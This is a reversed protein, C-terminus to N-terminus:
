LNHATKLRHISDQLTKQIFSIAYISRETHSITMLTPPSKSVDALLLHAQELLHNYGRILDSELLKNYRRIKAASKQNRIKRIEEKSLHNLASKNADGTKINMGLFKPAELKIADVLDKGLIQQALYIITDDIYKISQRTAILNIETLTRTCLDPIYPTDLVTQCTEKISNLGKYVLRLNEKKNARYQRSEIRAKEKQIPTRIIFDVKKNDVEESKELVKKAHQNIMTNMSDPDFVSNLSELPSLCISPDQEIQPSWLNLHSSLGTFDLSNFFVSM